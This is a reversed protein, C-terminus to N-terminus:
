TKKVQVKNWNTLRMVTIYGGGYGCLAIQLLYVFCQLGLGVTFVNLIGTVPCLFMLVVYVWMTCNSLEMYSYYALWLYLLESLILM